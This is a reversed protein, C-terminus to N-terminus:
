TARATRSRARYVLSAECQRQRGLAPALPMCWWHSVVLKEPSEGISNPTQPNSPQSNATSFSTPAPKKNKM